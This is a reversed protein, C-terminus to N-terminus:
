RLTRLVLEDELIQLKAQLIPSIQAGRAKLSHIMDEIEDYPRRSLSGRLRAIARQESKTPTLLITAM